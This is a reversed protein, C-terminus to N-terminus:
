SAKSLVPLDAVPNWGADAAAALVASAQAIYMARTAEDAKHWDQGAHHVAHLARAAALVANSAEPQRTGFLARSWATLDERRYMTRGAIHIAVPGTGSTAHQAFADPHIGLFAAAGEASLTPQEDTDIHKMTTEERPLHDSEVLTAREHALVWAQRLTAASVDARDGSAAAPSAEPTSWAAFLQVGALAPHDLVAGLLRRALGAGPVYRDVLLDVVVAKFQFDTLVRVFGVLRGDSGVAGITPQDGALLAAVKAPDLAESRWAQAYLALVGELHDLPVPSVLPATSVRTLEADPTFTM